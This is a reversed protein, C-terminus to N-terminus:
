SGSTEFARSEFHAVSLILRHRIVTLKLTDVYRNWTQNVTVISHNCTIDGVDRETSGENRVGTLGQSFSRRYDQRQLALLVGLQLSRNIRPDDVAELLDCSVILDIGKANFSHFRQTFNCVLQDANQGLSM